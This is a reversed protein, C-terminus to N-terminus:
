RFDLVEAREAELAIVAAEAHAQALKDLLDAAQAEAAAHKENTRDLQQRM